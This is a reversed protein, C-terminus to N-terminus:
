DVSSVAFDLTRLAVATQAASRALAALFAYLPAAPVLREASHVRTMADDCFLSIARSEPRSTSCVLVTSLAFLLMLVLPAQLEASCWVV